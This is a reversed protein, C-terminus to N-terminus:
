PPSWPASPSAAAVCRKSASASQSPRRPQLQRCWPSQLHLQRESLTEAPLQRMSCRLTLLSPILTRSRSFLSPLLGDCKTKKSRCSQCANAIKLRRRGARPLTTKLTEESSSM